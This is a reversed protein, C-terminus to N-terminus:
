LNYLTRQIELDRIFQRTEESNPVLVWHIYETNLEEPPAYTFTDTDLNSEMGHGTVVVTGRRLAGVGETVFPESLVVYRTWKKKPVSRLESISMSRSEPPLWYLWEREGTESRRM